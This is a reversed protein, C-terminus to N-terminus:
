FLMRFFDLLLQQKSTQVKGTGPDELIGNNLRNLKGMM